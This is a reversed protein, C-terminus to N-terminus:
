SPIDVLFGLREWTEMLNDTSENEKHIVDLVDAVGAPMNGDYHEKFAEILARTMGVYAGVRRVLDEVYDPDIMKGPPPATLKFEDLPM